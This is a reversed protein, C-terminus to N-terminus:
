HQRYDASAGSSQLSLGSIADAPHQLFGPQQQQDHSQSSPAGTEDALPRLEAVTLREDVLYRRAVARVQEVTVAQIRRTYDESVRWDLGIAALTGLITAQHFLSDQEYIESSIVQAKVRRLEAPTVLNEQLDQIERRLALELTLPTHGAAPAGSLSLLGPLRRLMSYSAQVTAALQQDRILRSPLRASDGWSLIAVLVELAYPEWTEAPPLAVLSPVKYLMTLWPVRAPREIVVRKSGSQRREPLPTHQPLPIAALSGYHKEVLPWVAEPQVDGAIVLAANNPGYYRYYWSRLQKLRLGELDSMWGIIPQRYPSTQFAAARAAEWTYARPNDETRLRREEKVVEIERAFDSEDLVLNSMRDAELQLCIELRSRELTQFYATYDRGTFANDRGGQEAITRSFTNGPYRRTGKFMMHELAHSIGTIGPREYSSGVRYWLQCVVIPARHDERILVTLGNALQREHTLGAGPVPASVFLGLFLVCAATRRSIRPDSTILIRAM